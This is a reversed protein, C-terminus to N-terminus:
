SHPDHAAKNKEERLRERRSVFNTFDKPLKLGSAYYSREVEASVPDPYSFHQRIARDIMLGPHGDQKM